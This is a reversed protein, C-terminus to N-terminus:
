ITVIATAALAALVYFVAIVKEAREEHEDLWAVGDKNVMTMMRDRALEGYEFVPWAMVGSLVLIVLGPVRAIRNRTALGAILAVLGLAAGYVPVPNLLVHIYEPLQLDRILDEFM